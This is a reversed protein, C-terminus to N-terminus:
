RPEEYSGEGGEARFSDDPSVIIEVRRNQARGEPTDNTAVPRSEGEGRTRIRASVVGNAALEDAVARARKQSLEYNFDEEGRSDTHGIVEVNTRPYRNLVGAVQRLKDRAGPQLYAKGSEFLVDSSMAVELREQDRRLRDQEALIAEMERAQNDMYRGIGAGALGGVVAGIAAGKWAGEGGGVIAGIASGAAAGTATGAVAGKTTRSQREWTACGVIAAATLLAILGNLLSRRM